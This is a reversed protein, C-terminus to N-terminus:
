EKLVESLPKLKEVTEVAEIAEELSGNKLLHLVDNRNLYPTPKKDDGDEYYLRFRM